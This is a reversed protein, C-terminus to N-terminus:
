NAGDGTPRESAPEPGAVAPGPRVPGSGPSGSGPSGSGPPLARGDLDPPVPVPADRVPERGANAFVVAIYPLGVAGAIFVWRPWGPVLVALVFCTTRIGMMLLYRRTRASVDASLSPRATTVVQVPDTRRTRGTSVEVGYTRGAATALPVGPSGGRGIGAM